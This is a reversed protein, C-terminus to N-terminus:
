KLYEKRKENVEFVEFIENQNAAIILAAKAM